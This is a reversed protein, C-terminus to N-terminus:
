ALSPWPPKTSTVATAKGGSWNNVVAAVTPSTSPSPSGSRTSPVTPVALADADQADKDRWVLQPDLDPNRPYLTPRVQAEEEAMLSSTEATPINRRTVDAPHHLTEVATAAGPRAANKAPPM